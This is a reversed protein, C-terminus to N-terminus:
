HLGRSGSILHWLATSLGAILRSSLENRNDPVCGNFMKAGDYWSRHGKELVWANWDVDAKGVEAAYCLNEIMQTIAKVGDLKSIEAGDDVLNHQPVVDHEDSLRLRRGLSVEIGNLRQNGSVHKAKQGLGHAWL